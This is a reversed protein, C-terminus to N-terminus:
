PAFFEKPMLIPFRGIGYKFDSKNRTIFYDMEHLIATFYQIGDEKDKFDSNMSDYFAENGGSIVQCFEMFHLLKEKANVLKYSNFSLYVLTGVSVESIFLRADGNGALALFPYSEQVFPERNAILDFAVNTDLFINNM